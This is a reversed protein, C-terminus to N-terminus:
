AATRSIGGVVDHGDLRAMVVWAAVQVRSGVKLKRLIHSVHTDITRESLILTRAIQRNSAGRVILRAVDWERASLINSREITTSMRASFAAPHVM